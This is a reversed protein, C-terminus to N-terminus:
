LTDIYQRYAKDIEGPITIDVVTKTQSIHMQLHQLGRKQRELKEKYTNHQEHLQDLRQKAAASASM